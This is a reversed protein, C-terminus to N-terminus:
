RGIFQLVASTVDHLKLSLYRHEELMAIFGQLYTGQPEMFHVLMHSISFLWSLKKDSQVTEDSWILMVLWLILLM